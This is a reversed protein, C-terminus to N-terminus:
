RPKLDATSCRPVAGRPSYIRRSVGVCTRIRCRGGHSLATPPAIVASVGQDPPGNPGGETRLWDAASEAGTNLADAVRNLDGPYLHGYLDLTMTATTHGLM